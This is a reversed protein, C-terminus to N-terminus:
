IGAVFASIKARTMAAGGMSHTTHCSLLKSVEIMASGARAWSTVAPCIVVASCVRWCVVAVLGAVSVVLVAEGLGLVGEGVGSGSISAPPGV